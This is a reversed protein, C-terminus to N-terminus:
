LDNELIILDEIEVVEDNKNVKVEKKVPIEPLGTLSTSDKSYCYVTYTGERLYRFEFSGDFHTRVDDHYTTTDNGYIIYVRKDPIYFEDIERSFDSNVVKMFVHGRITAKGGRGEPLDCSSFVILSVISILLLRIM